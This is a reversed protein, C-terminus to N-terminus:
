VCLEHSCKVFWWQVCVLTWWWLRWQAAQYRSGVLTTDEAEFDWLAQGQQSAGVWESVWSVWDVGYTANVRVAYFVNGGVTKRNNCWTTISCVAYLVVEWNSGNSRTVFRNGALPCTQQAMGLCCSERSAECNKGQIFIGCYWPSVVKINPTSSIGSGMRSCQTM